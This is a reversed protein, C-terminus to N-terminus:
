NNLLESLDLVVDAIRPAPRSYVNDDIIYVRDNAVAPISDWGARSKVDEVSVGNNMPILIVDPARAIITEDSVMPYADTLDDFINKGGANVIVDHIFSTSGVSMFPANWVEYYVKITSDLAEVEDDETPAPQPTYAKSLKEAMQAVVQAAADQHGTLEGMDMIEKEIATISTANSLYWKIGYSDLPEILFNHMGESLYVLDPEYSLITEISLTKGDFGGVIPKDAAEPPYDTFQSVAAIQDGAGIAYLIEAAAPSLTVISKPYEATKEVAKANKKIKKTITKKSKASLSMALALMLLVIGTKKILHKM